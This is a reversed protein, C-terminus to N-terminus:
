VKPAHHGTMLHHVSSLHAPDDHTLSRIIAYRDALRALRPFHESISVGPVRTAIPRFEGRVEAPADPKPDWTDLQSPGGWMFLLICAKAKGLTRRRALPKAKAVQGALLDGLDLGIVGLGGVRLLSRRSLYGTLGFGLCSDTPRRFAAPQPM